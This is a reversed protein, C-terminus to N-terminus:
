GLARRVMDEIDGRSKRGSERMLELGEQFLIFTPYGTLKYREKINGDRSADVRLVRVKDEFENAVEEEIKKIEADDKEGVHEFVVLTPITEKITEEFRKM